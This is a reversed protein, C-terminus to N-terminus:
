TNPQLHIQRRYLFGVLELRRNLITSYTDLNALLGCANKFSLIEGKTTTACIEPLISKKAKLVSMSKTEYMVECRIVKEKQM